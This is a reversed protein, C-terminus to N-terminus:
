PQTTSGMLTITITSKKTATATGTTSKKTATDLAEDGSIISLLM